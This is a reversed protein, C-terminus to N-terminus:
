NNRLRAVGKSITWSPYGNMTITGVQQTSEANRQQIAKSVTWAMDGSTVRAPLLKVNRYEIAKVGKSITWYPYNDGKNDQAHAVVMAGFSFLLIFATKKM